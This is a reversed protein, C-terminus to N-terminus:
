RYDITHRYGKIVHTMFPSSTWREGKMRGLIYLTVISKELDRLRLIARQAREKEEKNKTSELRTELSNRTVIIELAIEALNRHDTVGRTHMMALQSALQHLRAVTTDEVLVKPVSRVNRETDHQM